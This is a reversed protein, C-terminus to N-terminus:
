VLNTLIGINGLQRQFRLLHSFPLLRLHDAREIFQHFPHANCNNGNPDNQKHLAEEEIVIREPSTYSRHYSCHDAHDRFAQIKQRRNRQRDASHAKCPLLHKQVIHLTDLCQGSDIHKTHILCPRNCFIGHSDM